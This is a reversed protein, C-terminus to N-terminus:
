RAISTCLKRKSTLGDCFGVQHAILGVTSSVFSPHFDRVNLVSSNAISLVALFRFLYISLDGVFNFGFLFFFIMAKIIGIFYRSGKNTAICFMKTGRFFSINGGFFIKNGCLIDIGGADSSELKDVDGIAGHFAKKDAVM